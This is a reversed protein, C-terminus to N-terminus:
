RGNFQPRRKEHFARMAEAVDETSLCQMIASLETRLHTALSHDFTAHLLRKSLTLAIPPGAALREAYAAVDSLFTEASFVQHVLGIQSAEQPSIDRATLILETARSLGIRAYGASMLARDSVLRLDAALTLGFGAGVAPGNIAAIVPKDCGTVSLAWRGVWHLDDLREARSQRRHESMRQLNAPDLELGACFGRGAGTLVVVRVADDRSAEEMALPIEESLVQNVANLKEPRNLTITRVGAPSTDIQLHHFHNM